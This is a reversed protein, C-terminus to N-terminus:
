CNRPAIVNLFSNKVTTREEPVVTGIFSNSLIYNCITNIEDILLEKNKKDNINKAFYDVIESKNYADRLETSYPICFINNLNYRRQINKKTLKLKYDYLGIIFLHKKKSYFETYENSKIFSDLEYINQNMSFVIIDSAELIKRTCPVNFGSHLDMIVIDYANKACSLIDCLYEDIDESNSYEGCTLIDFRNKSLISLTYDKLTEPTIRQHRALRIVSEIGNNDIRLLNYDINTPMFYKEISSRKMYNHTLLIKYNEKIALATSISIANTTNGTQGHMSSWFSILM